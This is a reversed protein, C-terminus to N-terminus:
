ARTRAFPTRPDGARPRPTARGRRVDVGRPGVDSLDISEIGLARAPSDDDLTFNYAAADGFRPDAVLSGADKGQAQWQAFTTPAQSPPFALPPQSAGGLQFYVNREFTMNTLGSAVDTAFLTANAGGPPAGLVIINRTFLFSATAGEGSAHTGARLGARGCDSAFTCPWPSAPVATPFALVNNDIANDLGYHQQAVATGTSHAVNLRWATSSCAQDLYLAHAGNAGAFVDHVLNREVTTGPQPGVAYVGALDSLVFEGIDHVHNARVTVNFVSTAAYSWTWGLSVGTYSFHAIENHALAGDAATHWLVGTGAACVHGGDEIVSDVVSVRRTLLTEDPLVGSVTVGVRVGGAGLDHLWSRALTVDSCNDEVWLGTQGTHAIAVGTLTWDRVGHLHVAALSSDACSQYSCGDTMCDEELFAGAHSITLNAIDVGTAGASGVLVERLAPAVLELSSAIEGPALRYTLTRSVPDFNFSGPQLTSANLVNQLAFRADAGYDTEATWSTNFTPPTWVLVPSVSATWTHLLFVRAARMEAASLAM